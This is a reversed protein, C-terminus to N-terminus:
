KVYTPVAAAICLRPHLWGLLVHHFEAVRKGGDSQEGGAWHECGLSPDDVLCTRILLRELEVHMRRMQEEAALRWADALMRRHQDFRACRVCGSNVGGRDYADMGRQDHARRVLRQNGGGVSVLIGRLHAHMM